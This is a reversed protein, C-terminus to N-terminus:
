GSGADDALELPRPVCTYTARHTFAGPMGAPQMGTAYFDDVEAECKNDDTSDCQDWLTTCSNQFTTGKFYDCEEPDRAFTQSPESARCVSPQKNPTPDALPIRVQESEANLFFNPQTSPKVIWRTPNNPDKINEFGVNWRTQDDFEVRRISLKANTVELVDFRKLMELAQPYYTVSVSTVQGPLLANQRRVTTNDDQSAMYIIPLVLPAVMSGTAEIELHIYASTVNKTSINRFKLTFDKIWDKGAIVKGEADLQKNAVSKSVIQLPQKPFPKVEKVFRANEQGSMFGHM